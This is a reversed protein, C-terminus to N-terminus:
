ECDPEEDGEQSDPNQAKGEEAQAGCAPLAQSGSALPGAAALAPLLAFLLPLVIRLTTTM